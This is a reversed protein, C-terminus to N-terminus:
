YTLSHMENRQVIHRFNMEYTNAQSKYEM